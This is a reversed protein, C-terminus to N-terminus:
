WRGADPLRVAEFETAAVGNGGGPGGNAQHALRRSSRLRPRTDYGFVGTVINQLDDPVQIPGQRGRYTGRAHHYLKLDAPFAALLDGLQGHLVVSRTAADRHLM